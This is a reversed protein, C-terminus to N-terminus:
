RHINHTQTGAKSAVFLYEPAVTLASSPPQERPNGVHLAHAWIHQAVEQAM